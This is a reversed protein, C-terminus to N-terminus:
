SLNTSNYPPSRFSHNDIFLLQVPNLIYNFSHFKQYKLVKLDKISFKFYINLVQNNHNKHRTYKENLIESVNNQIEASLFKINFKDTSYINDPIFSTVQSACLISITLILLWSVFLLINKRIFIMKSISVYIRKKIKWLKTTALLM